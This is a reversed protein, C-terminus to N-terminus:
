CYYYYIFAHGRTYIMGPQLADSQVAQISALRMRMDQWFHGGADTERASRKCPAARTVEDARRQDFGAGTMSQFLLIDDTSVIDDDLAM